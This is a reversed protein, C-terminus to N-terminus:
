WLGYNLWKYVLQVSDQPGWGTNYVMFWNTFNSNHSGWSFANEHGPANGVLQLHDELLKQFRWKKTIKAWNTGLDMRPHSITM